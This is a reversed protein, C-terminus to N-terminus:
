IRGYYIFFSKRRKEKSFENQIVRDITFDSSNNTLRNSYILLFIGGYVAVSLGLSKLIIVANRNLFSCREALPFVASSCSSEDFLNMHIKFLTKKEEQYCHVILLSFSSQYILIFRYM